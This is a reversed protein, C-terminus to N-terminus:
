IEIRSKFMYISFVYCPLWLMNVCEPKQPTSLNSSRGKFVPIHYLLFLFSVFFPSLPIICFSVFTLVCCFREVCYLWLWHSWIVNLVISASCYSTQHIIYFSPKQPLETKLSETGRCKKPRRKLLWVNHITFEKVEKWLWVHYIAFEEVKGM